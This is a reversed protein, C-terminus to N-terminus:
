ETKPVPCTYAKSSLRGVNEVVPPPRKGLKWKQYNKTSVCQPCSVENKATFLIRYKISIIIIIIFVNNSSSVAIKDMSLLILIQKFLCM